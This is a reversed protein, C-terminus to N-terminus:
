DAAQSKTEFVIDSTKCDFVFCVVNEAAAIRLAEGKAEEFTDTAAAWM